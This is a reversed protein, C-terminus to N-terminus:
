SCDAWSYNSSVANRCEFWFACKLFRTPNSSILLSAENHNVNLDTAQLAVADDHHYEIDTIVDTTKCIAASDAYQCVDGESMGLDTAKVADVTHLKVPDNMSPNETVTQISEEDMRQVLRADQTIRQRNMYTPSAALQPANSHSLRRPNGVRGTTTVRRGAEPDFVVIIM